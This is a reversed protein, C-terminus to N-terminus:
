VIDSWIVVDVMAYREKKSSSPVMAAGVVAASARWRQDAGDLQRRVIQGL